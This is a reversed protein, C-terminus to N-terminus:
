RCCLFPNSDNSGAIGGSCASGREFTLNGSNVAHVAGAFIPWDGGCTFCMNCAVATQANVVPPALEANADPVWKGTAIRAQVEAPDITRTSSKVASDTSNQAYTTIPAALVMIAVLASVLFSMRYKMMGGQQLEAGNLATVRLRPLLNKHTVLRINVRTAALTPKRHVIPLGNGWSYSRPNSHIRPVAEPPAASRTHSFSGRHPPTCLQM